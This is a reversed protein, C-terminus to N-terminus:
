RGAVEFRSLQETAFLRRFFTQWKSAHEVREFYSPGPGRDTALFGGSCRGHHSLVRPKAGFNKPAPRVPQGVETKDQV